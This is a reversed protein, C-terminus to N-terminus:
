PLERVWVPLPSAASFPALQLFGRVIVNLDSVREVDCAFPLRGHLPSVLSLRLQGAQVDHWCYFLMAHGCEALSRARAAAVAQVFEEVEATTVAAQQEPELAFTWLNGRAEANIDDPRIVVTDAAVEDLWEVFPNLVVM